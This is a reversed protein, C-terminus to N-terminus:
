MTALGGTQGNIMEINKPSYKTLTNSLRFYNVLNARNENVASDILADLDEKTLKKKM